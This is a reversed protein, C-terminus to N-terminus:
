SVVRRGDPTVVAAFVNGTHGSLSAIKLYTELDWVLLTKDVSGFVAWRSEPTMAVATISDNNGELTAIERYTDMDWV